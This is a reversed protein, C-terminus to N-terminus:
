EFKSQILPVRLCIEAFICGVAWIDVGTSYYKSGMLLEPARYWRTVIESTMKLNSGTTRSLGFDTLKLNGNSDFLINAPKLDRHLIFNSHCQVISSLLMFMICKIHAAELLIFKDRIIKELDYPCYEMVIHISGDVIFVDLLKIINPEYLETLHKIERLVTRDIGGNPDNGKLRKIAVKQHTRSIYAAFVQGFTGEGLVEGREYNEM